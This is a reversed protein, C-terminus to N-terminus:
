IDCEIKKSFAHFLIPLNGLYINKIARGALALNIICIILFFYKVNKDKNGRFWLYFVIFINLSLVFSLLIFDILNLLIPICFKLTNISISSDLWALLLTNYIMALFVFGPLWFFSINQSKTELTVLYYAFFIPTITFFGAIAGLM